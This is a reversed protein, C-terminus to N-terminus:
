PRAPPRGRGRPRRGKRRRGWRRARAEVQKANGVWFTVSHFHLFRGREPQSSLLPSASLLPTGQGGGQDGTEVGAGLLGAGGRWGVAKPKGLLSDPRNHQVQAGPPHLNPLGRRLGSGSKWLSVAKRQLWAFRLRIEPLVELCPRSIPLFKLPPQCKKKSPTLASDLESSRPHAPGRIFEACM